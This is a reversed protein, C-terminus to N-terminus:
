RREIWSIRRGTTNPPLNLGLTGIQLANAPAGSGGQVQNTEYILYMGGASNSTIFSTGTANTQM